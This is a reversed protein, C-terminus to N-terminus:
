EDDRKVGIKFINVTPCTKEYPIDSGVYTNWEEETFNRTILGCVKEALMEAAAPRNILRPDDLSSSFINKGGPSFALSFVYGSNDEMVIPPNNLNSLEWYRVKGDYSSSALTKSDPSFGLETIRATHGTLQTIFKFTDGKFLLVNGDITGCALYAGNPSFAVSQISKGETRYVEESITTGKVRWIILRGDKTGGALLGGDPSLSISNIRSDLDDLRIHNKLELNWSEIFPKLGATFMTKSDPGIAITRINEDEGLLISSPSKKDGPMLLSVGGRNLAVALFKGDPSMQIKEIVGVGEAILESKKEPDNINWQLIKGDSGASILDSTGPIFALSRVANDHGKYVNYDQGLLAKLSLYLSSYVDADHKIGDYKENFQFAQYAM